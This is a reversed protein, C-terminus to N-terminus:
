SAAAARRRRVAASAAHPLELPEVADGADGAPDGVAAGTAVGGAAADSSADVGGEASGSVPLLGNKTSRDVEFPEVTRSSTSSRVPVTLPADLPSGPSPADTGGSAGVATLRSSVVTRTVHDAIGHSVLGAIKM